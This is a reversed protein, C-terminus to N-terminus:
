VHSRLDYHLWMNKDKENNVIRIRVACNRIFIVDHEIEYYIHYKAHPDSIFQLIMPRNVTANPITISECRYGEKAFSNCIKLIVQDVEEGERWELNRDKLFQDMNERFKHNGIVIRTITESQIASMTQSKNPRM